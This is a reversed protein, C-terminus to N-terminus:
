ISTLWSQHPIPRSDIRTTPRPSLYAWSEAETAAGFGGPRTGETYGLRVANQELREITRRRESGDVVAVGDFYISM